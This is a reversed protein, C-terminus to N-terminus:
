SAQGRISPAVIVACKCKYLPASKKKGTALQPIAAFLWLLKQMSLLVSHPTWPQFYLQSSSQKVKTAAELTHM